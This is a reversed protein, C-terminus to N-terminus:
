DPSEHNYLHCIALLIDEATDCSCGDHPKRYNNKKKNKKKNSEDYFPRLPFLAPNRIRRKISFTCMHLMSFVTKSLFIFHLLDKPPIARCSCYTCGPVIFLTPEWAPQLAPAPNCYQLSSPPRAEKLYGVVLLTQFWAGTPVLRLTQPGGGMRGTSRVVPRRRSPCRPNKSPRLIRKLDMEPNLGTPGGWVCVCVARVSM